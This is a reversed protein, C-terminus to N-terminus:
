LISGDSCKEIDAIAKLIPYIQQPVVANGLCKLRDVRNKVGTAVTPVGPWEAVFRGQSSAMRVWDKDEESLSQWAEDVTVSSNRMAGIAECAQRMSHLYCLTVALTKEWEALAMPYSLRQLIDALKRALQQNQRWRHPSGRSLCDNWLRRVEGWCFLTGEKGANITRGDEIGGDLKESLGNALMCFEPETDWWSGDCTTSRGALLTDQSSRQIDQFGARRTDAVDEQKDGASPREAQLARIGRGEDGNHRGGWRECESDAVDKGGTDAEDRTKDERHIGKGEPRRLECRVRDDHAVIFIRDRRHPANVGCAPIVFPITEYGCGELDSLCDYFGMHLLGAVNEAVVWAPRVESIVRLMEPWLWRDDDKGRRKGAVSVPQCPFGGTVLTVPRISQSEGDQKGIRRKASLQFQAKQIPKPEIRPRGEGINAHAMIEEKTADRIDGIIPVNPWYKGLVKQCFSDIEVFLITRFGAWEAALDIGGIGAFLSIHTL